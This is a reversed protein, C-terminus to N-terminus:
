HLELVYQNTPQGKSWIRMVSKAPDTMTGPIPGDQPRPGHQSPDEFIGQIYDSLAKYGRYAGVFEPAKGVEVLRVIIYHTEM